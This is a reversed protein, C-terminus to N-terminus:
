NLDYSGWGDFVVSASNRAADLRTLQILGKMECAVICHGTFSHGILTQLYTFVVIPHLSQILATFLHVCCYVYNVSLEAVDVM